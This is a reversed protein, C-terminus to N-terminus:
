IREFSCARTEKSKNIQATRMKGAKNLLIAQGPQLEKVAEASVNLATQIVPRESAIVAIEDDMYWFATRIGWPDRVAFMEGSGTAGAILYGGDWDKTSTKLVNTIDVHEEIDKTIDMGKLGKAMSDNFLREIERDLRHGVQELMIYTDVYQRPHQGIATIQQFVEDVNTMNFNGCL